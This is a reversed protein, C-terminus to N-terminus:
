EGSPRLYPIRAFAANAAEKDTLLYPNAIYYGTDGLEGRQYNRECVLGVFHVRERLHAAKKSTNAPDFLGLIPKLTGDSLQWFCRAEQPVAIHGYGIQDLDGRDAHGDFLSRADAILVSLTATDPLPFKLANTGDSVKSLLREIVSLTEGAVSQKNLHQRENESVHDLGRVSTPVLVRSVFGDHIETADLAAQTEGLSYAELLCRPDQGVAFDITTNAVGAGVEYAAELGRDHIALALRIEFMTPMAEFSIGGLQELRALLPRAWAVDRLAECAVRTADAEETTIGLFRKSHTPCM